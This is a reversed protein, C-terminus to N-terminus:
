AAAIVLPGDEPTQSLKDATVMAAIAQDMFTAFRQLLVDDRVYAAAQVLSGYLYTTPSDELLWNSVNTESLPELSDYYDIQLKAGIQANSASFAFTNGVIQYIGYGGPTEVGSYATNVGPGRFDLQKGDYWANIVRKWGSPLQLTYEYPAVIFSDRRARTFITNDFQEEALMIFDPILDILDQRKLYKSMRAQLDDYSEITM